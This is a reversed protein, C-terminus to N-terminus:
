NGYDSTEKVSYAGSETGTLEIKKQAHNEFKATDCDKDDVAASIGGSM